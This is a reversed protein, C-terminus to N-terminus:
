VAPFIVITSPLISSVPSEKERKKRTKRRAETALDLHGEAKGGKEGVNGEHSIGHSTNPEEKKEQSKKEGGGGHLELQDYLYTFSGVGGKGGGEGLKGEPTEIRIAAAV